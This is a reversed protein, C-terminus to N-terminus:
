MQAYKLEQNPHLTPALLDLKAQGRKARKAEYDPCKEGTLDHRERRKDLFTHIFIFYLRSGQDRGYHGFRLRPYVRILGQSAATACARSRSRRKSIHRM